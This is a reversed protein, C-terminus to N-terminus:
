KQPTTTPKRSLLGRLGRKTRHVISQLKSRALLGWERVLLYVFIRHRKVESWHSRLFTWISFLHTPPPTVATCYFALRSAPTFFDPNSNMWDLSYKWRRVAGVHTTDDDHHWVVLPEGCMKVRTGHVTVARLVFDYDAHKKLASDFPSKTCLERSAILTSTQLHRYDHSSKRCFLYESMPTSGDYLTQPQVLWRNPTQVVLRCSVILNRPDPDAAILELQRELKLPYWEDDDDLFAVWVGTANELGANRAGNHGRAVPVQVVRLRPDTEKALIDTTQQDSGDNVVIIEFNQYTQALVSKVARAVLTPRRHTPIVVSVLDTM